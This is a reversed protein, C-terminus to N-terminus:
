GQTCTDAITYIEPHPTPPPLHATVTRGLAATTTVKKRGFRRSEASHATAKQWRVTGAARSCGRKTQQGRLQSESNLKNEAHCEILRRSEHCRKKM